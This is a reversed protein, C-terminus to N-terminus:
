AVDHQAIPQQTRVPKPQQPAKQTATFSIEIYFLIQFSFSVFHFLSLLRYSFLHKCQQIALRAFSFNTLFLLSLSRFLSRKKKRKKRRKAKITNKTRYRM